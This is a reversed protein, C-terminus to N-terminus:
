AWVRMRTCVHPRTRLIIGPSLFRQRVPVCMKLDELQQGIARQLMQILECEQCCPLLVGIKGCGLWCTINEFMFSQALMVPLFFRITKIASGYNCIFNFIRKYTRQRTKNGRGYIRLAYGEGAKRQTTVDKEEQRKTIICMRSLLERDVPQKTFVKEWAVVQRKM